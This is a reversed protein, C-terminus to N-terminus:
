SGSEHPTWRVLNHYQNHPGILTLDGVVESLFWTRREAEDEWTEILSATAIDRHQECLEAVWVARRRSILASDHNGEWLRRAM